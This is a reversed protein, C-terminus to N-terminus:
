RPKPPFTFGFQEFIRRATGGQFFDYAQRAMPGDGSKVIALPYVIPQHINSPFRAAIALNGAARFDTAYAIAYRGQGRALLALAARVSAAFVTRDKLQAWLGLNRLAQRGYRGAPVHAPDGMVLRGPGLAHPLEALSTLGGEVEGGVSSSGGRRLLVLQNGLLAVSRDAALLNGQRLFKMWALDASLFLQAPAGAAIHKALTSSGAFIPRLVLGTKAKFAAAVATVAETTSAAALVDITQSNAPGPPLALAALCLWTGAFSTKALRMM